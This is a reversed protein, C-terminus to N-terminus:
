HGREARVAFPSLMLGVLTIAAVLLAPEWDSSLGFGLAGLSGVVATLPMGRWNLPIRFPRVADPRARRLQLVTANVFVFAVFVAFNSAQAVFRIDGVLAVAAALTTVVLAAVWPTRRRPGVTHFVAPLM